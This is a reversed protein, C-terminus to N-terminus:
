SLRSKKKSQSIICNVLQFYRWSCNSGPLLQVLIWEDGQFSTTCSLWLEDDIEQQFWTGSASFVFLCVFGCKFVNEDQQAKFNECSPKVLVVQFCAALVEGAYASRGNVIWVFVLFFSALCVKASKHMSRVAMLSNKATTQTSSLQLHPVQPCPHTPLPHPQVQLNHHDGGAKIIRHNQSHLCLLNSVVVCACPAFIVQADAVSCFATLLNLSCCHDRWIRGPSLPVHPM